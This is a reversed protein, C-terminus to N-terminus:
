PTLRGDDLVTRGDITLRAGRLNLWAWWGLKTSGGLHDNRGILLTLTGLGQDELLPAMSIKPNLGISLTGPRDRGPGARGYSPAFFEEGEEYTFRTLRGNAFTWRGGAFDGVTDSLGVSSRVNSRFVGDGKREDLAVSVVGAPLTVMSWGRKPTTPAVLGDDVTAKRGRLFLRLETGNPHTLLLERGRELRRALARGVAHMKTPDVLAGAILEERWKTLDVRYLRASAPSARGAAMLVARAGSREAARHLADAFEGLQLMTSRPMAHVRERDSPGFFSVLVDTRELAARRHEGLRALFQPAVETAAAWYTPEDQYLLMPRAGLRLSELVFANASALTESWSEVTVHEGARVRLCKRLVMRALERDRTPRAPTEGMITQVPEVRKFEAQGTVALDYRLHAAAAGTQIERRSATWEFPRGVEPYSALFGAISRAREASSEHGPPHARGLQRLEEIARARWRDPRHFSEVRVSPHRVTWRAIEPAASLSPGAVLVRLDQSPDVRRQVAGLFRLLARGGNRLPSPASPVDRLDRLVEELRPSPWDSIAFRAQAAKRAQPSDTKASPRSPAGLVFAVAFDPPCLFIGAVETASPAAKPDPRLPRPAFRAPAIGYSEWIRRVTMHSVGFRRALSRTSRRPQGEGTTAVTARVIAQVTEASVLGRGPIREVEGDIGRLRGVSFRKRWRAVTLRHVGLERAIQLNQAGDAARLAVKARRARAPSSGLARSWRLLTEREEASLTLRPAVRV